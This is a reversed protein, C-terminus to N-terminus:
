SDPNVEVLIYSYIHLNDEDQRCRCVVRKARLIHMKLTLWESQRRILRWARLSTWNGWILFFTLGYYFSNSIWNFTHWENHFLRYLQTLNLQSNLALDWFFILFILPDSGGGVGTLPFIFLHHFCKFYGLFSKSM